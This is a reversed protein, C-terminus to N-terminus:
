PTPQTTPHQTSSNGSQHSSPGNESKKNKYCYDWAYFWLVCWGAAFLFAGIEESTNDCLENRTVMKTPNDFDPVKKDTDPNCSGGEDSVKYNYDEELGSKIEIRCACCHKQPTNSTQFNAVKKKTGCACCAEQATMNTQVYIWEGIEDKKLAHKGPFRADNACWAKQQVSNEGFNEFFYQERMDCSMEVVGDTWKWYAEDFCKSTLLKDKSEAFCDLPNKKYWDCTRGSKM